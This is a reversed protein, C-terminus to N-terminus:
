IPASVMATIGIGWVPSPSAMLSRRFRAAAPRYVVGGGDHRRLVAGVGCDNKESFDVSIGAKALMVTLLAVCERESGEFM